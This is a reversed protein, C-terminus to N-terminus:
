VCYLLITPPPEPIPNEQKLDQRGVQQSHTGLFVSLRVILAQNRMQLTSYCYYCKLNLFIYMLTCSRAYALYEAVIFKRAVGGDTFTLGGRDGVCIKKESNKEIM